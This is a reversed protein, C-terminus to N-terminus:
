SRGSGRGEDPWSSWRLLRPGEELSQTLLVDAFDRCILLGCGGPGLDNDRALQCLLDAEVLDAVLLGLQMFEVQNEDLIHSDVGRGTSTALLLGDPFHTGLHSLQSQAAIEKDTKPRNDLNTGMQILQTTQSQLLYRM